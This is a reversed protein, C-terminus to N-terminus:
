DLLEEGTLDERHAAQIQGHVSRARTFIAEMEEPSPDRGEDIMVQLEDTISSFAAKIQPAVTIGLILLDIGRLLLAAQAATM